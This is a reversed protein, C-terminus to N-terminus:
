LFRFKMFSAARRCASILGQKKATYFFKRFLAKLSMSLGIKEAWVFGLFYEAPYNLVMLKESNIELNSSTKPNELYVKAYDEKYTTLGVRPSPVFENSLANKLAAISSPLNGVEYMTANIEKEFREIFAGARPVVIRLGLALAETAAICFTEPWISGFFAVRSQLSPLKGFEYEGLIKLRHRTEYDKAWGLHEPDIRGAHEFQLALLEPASILEKLFNAGKPTSLNGLVVVSEDKKIIEASVPTPVKPSIVKVQNSELGYLKVIAEKHYNSGVVILDASEFVKSYAVRLASIRNMNSNRALACNICKSASPMELSECYERKHDLLNFSDCYHSYDHLTIITGLGMTSSIPIITLPNNLNHFVHVLDIKNVILLQLFWNSFDDDGFMIGDLSSKGHFSSIKGAKGAVEWIIQNGFSRPTMRIVNLESDLTSLETYLYETGGFNVLKEISSHGVLLINKM